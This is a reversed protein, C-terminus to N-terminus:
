RWSCIRIECCPLRVEGGGAPPRPSVTTANDRSGAEEGVWDRLRPWQRILSEHSVDVVGDNSVTVFSRGPQEFHRIVERVDEVTADAVSAIEALTAPHRGERGDDGLETFDSSPLSQSGGAGITPWNRMHRTPM